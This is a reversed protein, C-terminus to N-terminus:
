QIRKSTRKKCAAIKQTKDFGQKRKSWQTRKDSNGKCSTKNKKAAQRKSTVIRSRRLYSSIMTATKM